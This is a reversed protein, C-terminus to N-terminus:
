SCSSMEKMLIGFKAYISASNLKSTQVRFNRIVDVFNSSIWVVRSAPPTKELYSWNSILCLLWKEGFRSIQRDKWNKDRNEVHRCVNRNKSM